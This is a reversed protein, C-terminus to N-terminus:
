KLRRNWKRGKCNRALHIIQRCEIEEQHVGLAHLTACPALDPQLLHWKSYIVLVPARERRKKEASKILHASFFHAAHLSIKRQSQQIVGGLGQLPRAFFNCKREKHAPAAHLFKERECIFCHARSCSLSLFSLSARAQACTQMHRRLPFCRFFEM